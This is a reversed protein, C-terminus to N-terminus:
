ESYFVAKLRNEEMGPRRGRPTNRKEARKQIEKCWKRPISFRM